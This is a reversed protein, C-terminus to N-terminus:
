NSFSMFLKLCDSFPKIEFVIKSPHTGIHTHTRSHTHTSYIKLSKPRILLLQDSEERERGRRERKRKGAILLVVRVVIEAAAVFMKKMKPCCNCICPGRPARKDFNIPFKRQNKVVEAYFDNPFHPLSMLRTSSSCM